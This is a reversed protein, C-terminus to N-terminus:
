RSKNNGNINHTLRHCEYCLTVGNEVDYRLKKYKAWGKVHHAELYVKEGIQSRKGCTQCTWNDRTFVDSRWKIYRRDRLHVSERRKVRGIRDFMKIRIRSLKDKHEQTFVVKRGIFHKIPKGKKADSMKQRWEKSFPPRKKGKLALGIKKKHEESHQPMKKGKNPATVGKKFWGKNVGNKPIGIPM